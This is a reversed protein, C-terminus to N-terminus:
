FQILNLEIKLSMKLSNKQNVFHLKRLLMTAVIPITFNLVATM